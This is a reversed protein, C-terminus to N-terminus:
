IQPISLTDTEIENSIHLSRDRISVKMKIIKNSVLRALGPTLEKYYTIEGEIPKAKVEDTLRPFRGDLTLDDPIPVPVFNGDQDQYLITLFINFFLPNVITDGGVIVLADFKPDEVGPANFTGGQNLGLDGDGDRFSFTVALSDKTDDIFKFSKNGIKPEIPYKPEVLCSSFLLVFILCYFFHKIYSNNM